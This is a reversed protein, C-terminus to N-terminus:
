EEIRILVVAMAAIGEGRGTFGMKETTTAKINVHKTNLVNSIQEKMAPIYSALKPKQAIITADINQLVAGEKKMMEKISQLFLLSSVGKYKQDTDPFHFGIDGKGMAGLLSDAIAHLLVDADSHGDLGKEFPVEVGGLILKRGEKFRHADIGQGIKFM